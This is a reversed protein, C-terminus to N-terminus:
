GEVPWDDGAECIATIAVDPALGLCLFMCVRVNERVCACASVCLGASRATFITSLFLDVLIAAPLNPGIAFDAQINVRNLCCHFRRALCLVPMPDNPPGKCLM